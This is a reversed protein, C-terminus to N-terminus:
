GGMAAMVLPIAILAFKGLNGGTKQQVNNVANEAVKGATGEALEDALEPAAGANVLAQYAVPYVSKTAGVTAANKYADSNVWVNVIEDVPRGDDLMQRAMAVFAPDDVIDRLEAEIEANAILQQERNMAAHAKRAKNEALSTLRKKAQDKIVAQAASKALHAGLSGTAPATMGLASFVAPGAFFSAAGLAVAKTIPSKEIKVVIKELKDPLLKRKAKDFAKNHVKEISKLVSAHAKVM